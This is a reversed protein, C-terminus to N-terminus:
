LRKFGMLKYKKNINYSNTKRAIYMSEKKQDNNYCTNYNTYNTTKISIKKYTPPM